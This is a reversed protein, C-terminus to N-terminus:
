IIQSPTPHPYVRAFREPDDQEIGTSVKGCLRGIEAMVRTNWGTVARPQIRQPRHIEPTMAEGIHISMPSSSDVRGSLDCRRRFRIGVPVLPAGTELSLRAAARRGRLLRDARRNVTGEPFVGISGGKLLHDRAAEFPPAEPEFLPKLRNLIRPRASKRTVTIAGARDYLYGAGPILRFNWDALFRVARGGRALMLIAPLFVAERRASHNAVLLFPDREPLIKEWGEVRAVQKMAILCVLRILARDVASAIEDLPWHLVHSWQLEAWPPLAAAPSGRHYASLM